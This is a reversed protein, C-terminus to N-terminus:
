REHSFVGDITEQAAAIRRKATALSCGALEAVEELKEGEIHRLTWAIRNDVPMTDLVAYVRALLARDEATAGSSAIQEYEPAEGLGFVRGLRRLKLKRRSVRVTVTALWAKLADPERLESLGKHARLFVDQVVDDVDDDRGLLRKAIAAVYRSYLRFAQDLTLREAPKLEEIPAVVRLPARHPQMPEVQDTSLDRSIPESLRIMSGLNAPNSSM